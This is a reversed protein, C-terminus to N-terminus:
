MEGKHLLSIKHQQVLQSVGKLFKTIAERHPFDKMYHDEECITCPFKPNKNLQTDVTNLNDQENSYEESKDKNKKKGGLQQSSTSQVMNVKSTQSPAFTTKTNSISSPEPAPKTPDNSPHPTNPIMDYLTDFLSYVLDLYQV